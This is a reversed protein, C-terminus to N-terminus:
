TNKLNLFKKTDIEQIIDEIDSIREEMEQTKNTTSIYLKETRKGLNKMDVTGETQIKKIAEIKMKLDQVTKNIEKEHKITSEQIEKLSKNTEEKFVEIMKILSSKIDNEEAKIVTPYGLSSSTSYRHESLTMSGQSQQNHGQSFRKTM